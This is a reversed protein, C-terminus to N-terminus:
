TRPTMWPDPFTLSSAFQLGRSYRRRVELQASNFLSNATSEYHSPALTFSDGLLSQMIPPMLQGQIEPFGSNAVSIGDLRVLGRNVGGRPTNLRLLKVGRTGVYAFSLIFGHSAFETGTSYQLSYPNRLGSSSEILALSSFTPQLSLGSVNYLGQTM